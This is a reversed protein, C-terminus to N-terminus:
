FLPFFSDTLVYKRRFDENTMCFMMIGQILTVLQWLGCTVLSLLITLLGGGIKGLYFYQVGIGGLIIAFLAAVGRSKGEPGEDFPNNRDFYYNMNQQQYGGADHAHNGYRPDVYQDNYGYPASQQGNQDSCGNGGSPVQQFPNHCYPCVQANDDALGGCKQCIKM